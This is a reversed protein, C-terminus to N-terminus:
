DINAIEIISASIDELEESFKIIDFTVIGHKWKTVLFKYIQFNIM